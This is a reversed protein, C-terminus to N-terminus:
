PKNYPKIRIQNSCFLSSPSNLNLLSLWMYALFEKYELINVTYKGKIKCSSKLTNSVNLFFYDLNAM